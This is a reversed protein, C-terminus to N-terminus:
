SVVRVAQAKAMFVLVAAVALLPPPTAAVALAAAVRALLARSFIATVATVLMAVRVAAALTIWALLLGRAVLVARGM